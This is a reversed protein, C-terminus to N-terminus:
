RKMGIATTTRYENLSGSPRKLRVHCPKVSSWQFCGNATSPSPSASRLESSMPTRDVASATASPVTM